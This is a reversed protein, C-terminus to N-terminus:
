GARPPREWEADMEVPLRWHASGDVRGFYLRSESFASADGDAWFVEFPAVAPRPRRAYTHNYAGDGTVTRERTWRDGDASRWAAMEGGTHHPQPGPETPGFVRWPDGPYLSGSDYNHDSTTVTRHVWEAGTWRSLIWRRPDGDPGPAYDDSTVYLVAPNGAADWAVDNLYVLRDAAAYNVVLAPNQADTLPPDIRRGDVTEWTEGGDPTVLVYLNTRRDVDGEPHWNFATVVSATGPRRDSVQYHGGGDIGALKRPDSWAEGDGRIWFLERNGDEDYITFACCFEGGVRWPQPYAFLEREQVLEFADASGPELARYIRGPRHRGRGAVFVWLRGDADLSLSADDHPDRVTGADYLADAEDKPDVLAPRRVRGSGHDYSGVMIRLDREGPVTGGYTFFTRESRPDYVAMPAHKMTYTGLGGSYKDGYEGDLQGLAFWIGRYGDARQNRVGDM